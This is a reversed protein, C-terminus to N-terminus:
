GSARHTTRGKKQVGDEEAGLRRTTPSTQEDTRENTRKDTFRYSVRTTIVTAM